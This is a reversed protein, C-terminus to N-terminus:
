SRWQLRDGVALELRDIEGAAMEVTARAGFAAAMRLPVLRRVLKVITESADLFALDLAYRMGITHVSSCPAILLAEGAVLPRRGLLGRTRESASAARWAREIVVREAQNLTGVTLDEYGKM